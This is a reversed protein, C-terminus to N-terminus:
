QGNYNVGTNNAVTNAVVKLKVAYYADIYNPLFDKEAPLGTSPIKTVTSGNLYLECGHNGDTTATEPTGTHDSACYKTSTGNVSTDTDSIKVTENVWMNLEYVHTTNSNQNFVGTALLAGDNGIVQRDSGTHGTITSMPTPDATYTGSTTTNTTPTITSNSDTGSVTLRISIESDNMRVPQINSQGKVRAAPADGELFYVKYTVPTTSENKGTVTFKLYGVDQTSAANSGTIAAPATKQPFAQTLNIASGENFYTYIEGTAVVNNTNGAKTYSFFAFSVGVVAVVLIAIGLVSLLVQKSSNGNM